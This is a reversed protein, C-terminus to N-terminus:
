RGKGGQDRKLERKRGGRLCLEARGLRLHCLRDLGFLAAAERQELLQDVLVAARLIQLPDLLDALHHAGFEFRQAELDFPLRHAVGAARAMQDRRMDALGVALAQEEDCMEVGDEFGVRRELGEDALAVLSLTRAGAVVLAPHDHDDRRQARHLRRPRQLVRVDFKVHRAVLLIRARRDFLRAGVQDCRALAAVDREIEFSEDAVPAGVHSRDRPARRIAPGDGRGALARVAGADEAGRRAVAGDIFERADEMAEAGLKGFRVQGEVDPQDCAPLLGVEVRTTDAGGDAAFGIDDRSGRDRAAVEARQRGLLDLPHLRFHGRDDGVM